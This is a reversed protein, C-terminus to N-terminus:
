TIKNFDQSNYYQTIFEYEDHGSGNMKLEQSYKTYVDQIHRYNEGSLYEKRRCRNGWDFLVDRLRDAENELVRASLDDLKSDIKEFHLNKEKDKDKLEQVEILITQVANFMEQNQKEKEEEKKIKEKHKKILTSIPTAIKESKELITAITVLVLVITILVINNSFFNYVGQFFSEM